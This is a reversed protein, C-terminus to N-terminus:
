RPLLNKAAAVFRKGEFQQRIEETVQVYRELDIHGKLCKELVYEAQDLQIRKQETKRFAEIANDTVMRQYTGLDM